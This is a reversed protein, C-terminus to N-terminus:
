ECMCSTTGDTEEGCTGKSGQEDCYISCDVRRERVDCTVRHEGDCYVEDPSCEPWCIDAVENMENMGIDQNCVAYDLGELCEKSFVDYTRYPCGTFEPPGILQCKEWRDCIKQITVEEDGCVSLITSVATLVSISFIFSKM